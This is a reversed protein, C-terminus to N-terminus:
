TRRRRRTIALATGGTILLATALAAAIFVTTGTRAMIGSIGGPAPTSPQGPKGPTTPQGPQGPTPHDPQTPVTATAEPSVVPTTGARGSATATNTVKGTAAEDATITHPKTTCEMTEGPALSTAPCTVEGATPDSIKIDTVTLTGQNAALLKWEIRDGTGTTGDRDTDTVDATKTLTLRARGDSPVTVESPPSVPTEGSPPTGTATATNTVSGADADAQTITYLATCTLTAGPALSAAQEPCDVAGLKGTGTFEGEKVKVDKLTVNGTNTVTFRYTIEEGAVLAAPTD